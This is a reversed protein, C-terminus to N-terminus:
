KNIDWQKWEEKLIAYQFRDCWEYDLASNGQQAKIFHGERRMGIKEMIRYSGRNKANCAAIIRRLGLTDFSFKLLARGIETGYGQRWYNKHLVWGIEPDGPLNILTASGILINESKLVVAFEYNKIDEAESSSIAWNIYDRTESESKPEGMWYKMNEANGLWDFVEPFDDYKFKRYILRESELEIFKSKM